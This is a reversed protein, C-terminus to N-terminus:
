SPKPSRLATELSQDADELCEEIDDYDPVKKEDINRLSDVASQLKLRVDAVREREVRTLAMHKNREAVTLKSM